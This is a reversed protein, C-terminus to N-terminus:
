FIGYPVINGKSFVVICDVSEIWCYYQTWEHSFSLKPEAVEHMDTDLQMHTQIYCMCVYVYLM